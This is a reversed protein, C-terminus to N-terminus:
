KVINLGVLIHWTNNNLYVKEINSIEYGDYLDINKKNLVNIIDELSTNANYNTKITGQIVKNKVIYEIRVLKFEPTDNNKNQNKKSLKSKYRAVINKFKQIVQEQNVIERKLKVIKKEAERLRGEYANKMHKIKLEINSYDEISMKIAVSDNDKVQELTDYEKYGFKTKVIYKMM